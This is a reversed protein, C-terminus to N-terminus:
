QRMWFYKIPALHTFSDRDSQPNTSINPWARCYIIKLQWFIKDDFSSFTLLLVFFTLLLTMCDSFTVMWEPASPAEETEAQKSGREM